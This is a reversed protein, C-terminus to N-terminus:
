PVPSAVPASALPTSPAMAAGVAPVVGPAAGGLAPESQTSVGPLGSERHVLRANLGDLQYAADAAALAPPAVLDAPDVLMAALNNQQNCRGLSDLSPLVDGHFAPTVAEACDTTAAFTRTLMVLPLLRAVAVSREVVIRAPDVGLGLLAREVAEADGATAARIRARVALPHPGGLSAVADGLQARADPRLRPDDHLAVLVDRRALSLAVPPPRGLEAAENVCGSVAAALAM